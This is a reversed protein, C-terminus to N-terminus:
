ADSFQIIVGSQSKIRSKNADTASVVNTTTGNPVAGVILPRDPDGGVFAVAVETGARLPMHMGYDRGVSPQSMRIPLSALVGGYGGASSGQHSADRGPTDLHLEVYYRGQKDIAGIPPDPLTNGKEHAQTRVVGSMIGHIRPKPTVRAPRFTGNADIAVFRNRYDIEDGGGGSTLATLEAHHEVEVVLLERTEDHMNDLKFAAGANLRM